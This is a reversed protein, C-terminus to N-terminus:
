STSSKHAAFRAVLGGLGVGVRIAGFGNKALAGRLEDPTALDHGHGPKANRHLWAAPGARTLDYGVMLGGPRLVRQCEGLAAGLNGVHHLMIMSVVVDFSADDFPLCAADASQVVARSGFGVLRARAAELMVPDVDTATIRVNPYRRLLAAANAGAGTGLELVEGDLSQGAFVWPIVVRGTIARWVPNRCALVEGASM